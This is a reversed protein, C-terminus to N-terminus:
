NIFYKRSAYKQTNKENETQKELYNTHNSVTNLFTNKSLLGVKIEYAGYVEDYPLWEANMDSELSARSNVGDYMTFKENNASYSQVKYTTFFNIGLFDLSHKIMDIEEPSFAPLRSTRFFQEVSKIGIALQMFDPYGGREGLLPNLFWYNAFQFSSEAAETDEPSM